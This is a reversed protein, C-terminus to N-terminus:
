EVYRVLESLLKRNIRRLIAGADNSVHIPKEPYGISLITAIQADEPLGLLRYCTERDRPTNPCTGIGDAWAALMMNQAVRGGDWGPQGTLM